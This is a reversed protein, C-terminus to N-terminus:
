PQALAGQQAQDLEHVKQFLTDEDTEGSLELAIALHREYEMPDGYALAIQALRAHAMAKAMGLSTDDSEPTQQAQLDYDQLLQELAEQAREGSGTEFTEGTKQEVQYVFYAQAASQEAETFVPLASEIVEVGEGPDDASQSPCTRQVYGVGIAFGLIGGLLLILIFRTTTKM